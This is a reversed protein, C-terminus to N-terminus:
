HITLTKVLDGVLLYRADVLNRSTLKFGEGEDEESSSCALELRSGGGQLSAGQAGLLGPLTQM